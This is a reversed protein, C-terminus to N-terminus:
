LRQLECIETEQAHAMEKLKMLESSEVTKLRPLKFFESMFEYVLFYSYANILILM